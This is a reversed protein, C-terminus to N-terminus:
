TEVQFRVLHCSGSMSLLLPVLFIPAETTYVHTHSFARLTSRVRSYLSFFPRPFELDRETIQM